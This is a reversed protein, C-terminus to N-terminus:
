VVVRFQTVSDAFMSVLQFKIAFKLKKKNEYWFKLQLNTDRDKFIEIM